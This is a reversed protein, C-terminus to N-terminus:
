DAHNVIQFMEEVRRRMTHSQEIKQYGNQAIQRREEDHNLYYEVKELLDGYNEYCVLDRGIEFYRELEEQYNTLLFGGCGMIDFARLPIGTKISRLTINLNIKSKKFVCPMENYYDVPGENVIGEISVDASGTYLKIDYNPFNKGLLNLIELREVATVQRALVYDAYIQEPTMVTRANPDTPYARELEGLIEPTIMERLFNYGYIRKQIQIISDLYGRAYPSIGQFKDYLRHKAESYLSGVFAVDAKYKEENGNPNGMGRLRKTNVGLPMYYVTKIGEESLERYVEYDFLFIYNCPNLVTYSYVHIYPSDYVWSVYSVGAAMCLDSAVPFYNFSFVFDFRERELVPKLIKDAEEKSTNIGNPLRCLEVEHGLEKLVDIMDENGYSNWDMFLVKMKSEGVYHM